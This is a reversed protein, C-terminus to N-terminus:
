RMSAENSSASSATWSVNRRAHRARSDNTPPASTLAHSYRIAVLTHRSLRRRFVRRNVEIRDSASTDHSVGYGSRSSSSIAGDSSSGSASTTSRSVISSAKRAASCTRGGRCRAASMARSTSPQGALSIADTSSVLTGATLLARWRARALMCPCRGARRVSQDAPSGLSASRARTALKMSACSRPSAARAMEIEACSRRM